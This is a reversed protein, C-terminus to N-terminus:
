HGKSVTEGGRFRGRFQCRISPGPRNLVLVGRRPSSSTQFTTRFAARSRGEPFRQASKELSPACRKKPAPSTSLTHTRARALSHTHSGHTSLM